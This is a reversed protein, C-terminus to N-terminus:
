AANRIVRRTVASAVDGALVISAALAVFFAMEDYRGRVRADDIWYGLSTFGLLGLVTAERVCTEWRYFFYLLLRPLVLPFVGLAAVQLRGAGLGRLARPVAPEVNEVVEAGLRGLIGGNHVALALVAPWAQPGLMSLFLFAWVYEPIARSFTLLGRALVVVTRWLWRAAPVIRTGPLGFPEASAVNRAAPLALLLALAGALVIAAVSLALTASAASLGKNGLLDLAWEWVASAPGDGERQLPFPRVETMFRRLNTLRRSSLTDSVGFGGALWSVVVLGAALLASARGFWNRPRRARLHKVEARRRLLQEPSDSM